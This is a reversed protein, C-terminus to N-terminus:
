QIPISCIRGGDRCLRNMDRPPWHINKLNTGFHRNYIEGYNGLAKITLTFWNQRLGLKINYNGESGTLRKIRPDNSRSLEEVNSSNIGLEEAMILANFVWRMANYLQEEGKKVVIGYIKDNFKDELMTINDKNRHARTLNGMMLFGDSTYADCRGADFADVAGPADGFALVKLKMDNRRFLDTIAVETNNGQTVCVTAGDLDKLKTIGSDTHVVIRQSDHFWGNVYAIGLFAERQMTWEVTRILVDYNGSATMVIQDRALIHFIKAKSADGLIAMAFVRCLDIAMGKSTSDEGPYAFGYGENNVACSLIDRRQISQLSDEAAALSTGCLLAAAVVSLIKSKYSM